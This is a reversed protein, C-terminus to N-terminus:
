LQFLFVSSLIDNALILREASSFQLSRSESYTESQRLCPNSDWDCGNKSVQASILKHRETKMHVLLFIVNNITTHTNKFRPTDSKYGM